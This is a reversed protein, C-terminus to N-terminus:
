VKINAKILDTTKKKVDTITAALTNESYLILLIFLFIKKIM